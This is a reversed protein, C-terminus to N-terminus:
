SRDGTQTLADHYARNWVLETDQDVYYRAPNRLAEDLTVREGAVGGIVELVRDARAADAPSLAPTPEGGQGAPEVPDNDAM